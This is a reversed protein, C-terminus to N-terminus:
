HVKDLLYLYQVLNYFGAMCYIVFSVLMATTHTVLLGTLCCGVLGVFLGANKFAYPMALIGTGLSSKIIHLLAGFDSFAIVKNM